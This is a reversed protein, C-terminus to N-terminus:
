AAAELLDSLVFSGSDIFRDGKVSNCLRHSAKLNWTANSGGQARPIFHDAEGYLPNNVESVPLDPILQGCLHCTWNDRKLV